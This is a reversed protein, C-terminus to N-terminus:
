DMFYHYIDMKRQQEKFTQDSWFRFNNLKFHLLFPFLLKVKYQLPKFYINHLEGM